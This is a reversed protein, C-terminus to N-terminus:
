RGRKLLMRTMYMGAASLGFWTFAYGAHVAPTVKFDGIKDATPLFPPHYQQSSPSDADTERVATVYPTSLPVRAVAKMTPADYWYLKPPQSTIEHDAV